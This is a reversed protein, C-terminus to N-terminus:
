YVICNRAADVHGDARRFDNACDTRVKAYGRRCQHRGGATWASLAAEFPIARTHESTTAVLDIGICSQRRLRAYDRNALVRTRGPRSPCLKLM